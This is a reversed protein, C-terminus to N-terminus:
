TTRCRDRESTILGCQSELDIHSGSPSVLYRPSTPNPRIKGRSRDSPFYDFSAYGRSAGPGAARLRHGKGRVDSASVNEVARRELPPRDSVSRLSRARPRGSVRHDKSSKSSVRGTKSSRGTVRCFRPNCALVAIVDGHGPLGVRSSLSAAWRAKHCEGCAPSAPRFGSCLGHPEDSRATRARSNFRNCFSLLLTRGESARQHHAM